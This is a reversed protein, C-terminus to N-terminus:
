SFFIVLLIGDVLLLHGGALRADQDPAVGSVGVGAAIWPLEKSSDQGLDTFLSIKSNVM